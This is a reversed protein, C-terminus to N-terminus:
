WRFAGDSWELVRARQAALVERTLLVLDAEAPAAKGRVSTGVRWLCERLQKACALAARAKEPEAAARARLEPANGEDLVGQRTAWLLVDEYTALYDAGVRDRRSGVTNVLDLAPHGGVIRVDAIGRAQM